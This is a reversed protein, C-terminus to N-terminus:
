RGSYRDDQFRDYPRPTPAPVRTADRAFISAVPNRDIGPTATQRDRNHQQEVSASLNGVLQPAQQAAAVGGPLGALLVAAFLIRKM